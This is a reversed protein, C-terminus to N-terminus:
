SQGRFHFYSGAQERSKAFRRRSRRSRRGTTCQDFRPAFASGNPRGRGGNKRQVCRQRDHGGRRRESLDRSDLQPKPSTRVDEPSEERDIVQLISEVTVLDIANAQIILANLRADPVISVTGTTTLVPGDSGGGGGGGMGLLGGLMGGGIEGLMSGAMDGLGGGGGSDAGSLISNLLESAVSAKIYKLWYVTPKQETTAVSDAIMGMLEEFEALADLDDSAIVMGQPTMQIIIDSGLKSNSGQNDSPAQSAPVTAPTEDNKKAAVPVPVGAVAVEVKPGEDEPSSSASLSMGPLVWHVM